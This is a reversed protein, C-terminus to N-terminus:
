HELGTSRQRSDMMEDLRAFAKGVAVSGAAVLLAGLWMQWGISSALRTDGEGMLYLVVLLVAAHGLAAFGAIIGRALGWVRQVNSGVAQLGIFVGALGLSYIGFPGGVLWEIPLFLGALILGGESFDRDLALYIGIILPTQLAWVQISLVSLVASEAIMTALAMVYVVVAPM